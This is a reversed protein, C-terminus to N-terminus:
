HFQAMLIEKRYVEKFFIDDMWYLQKYFGTIIITGGQLEKNIPFEREIPKDSLNFPNGMKGMKFFIDQKDKYEKIIQEKEKRNINENFDMLLEGKKNKVEVTVMAEGSVSFDHPIYNNGWHFFLIQGKNTYKIKAYLDSFLNLKEPRRKEPADHKWYFYHTPKGKEDREMHCSTCNIENKIYGKTVLAKMTGVEHSHCPKCNINSSFFKSAILECNNNNAKTSNKTYSEKTIIKEGSKHCTFCDIGTTLNLNNTSRSIANTNILAPYFENTFHNEDSEYEVGKFVSEYLNKSAHCNLCFTSSSRRTVFNKYSIHFLNSSDVLKIYNNLTKYANAHPGLLWNKYEEQHCSACKQIAKVRDIPDESSEIHHESVSDMHKDEMKNSDQCHALFFSISILSFIVYYIKMSKNRHEIRKNELM